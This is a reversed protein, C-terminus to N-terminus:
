VERARGEHPRNAEERRCLGRSVPYCGCAGEGNQGHSIKKHGPGHCITACRSVTLLCAATRVPLMFRALRESSKRGRHLDLHFSTLFPLYKFLLTRIHTLQTHVVWCYCHTTAVVKLEEDSERRLASLAAEKDGALEARLRGVQQEFDQKAGQVTCCSCILINHANAQPLRM